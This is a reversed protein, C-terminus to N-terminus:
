VPASERGNRLAEIVKHTASIIRGDIKDKNGEWSWQSEEKRNEIYDYWEQIKNIKTTNDVGVNGFPVPCSCGSDEAFHVTGDADKQWVVTTDYSYPDSAWEISAIQTLGFKEPSYYINNIM